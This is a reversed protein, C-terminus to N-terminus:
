SEHAEEKVWNHFEEESIAYFRVTDGAKLLSPQAHKPRFLSLPTCGILQWGGPTELPYVGTQDGAIGVSGAPIVARPTAKRPTAIRAYMGGLYPFGPAFGIMYVLYDPATHLAIVEEPTLGNTKAVFELDPGFVGGYCVPVQVVESSPIISNEQLQGLLELVKEEVVQYPSSHEASGVLSPSYYVTVTTFAPVQEVFGAFTNQAVCQSFAQILAFTEPSISDGFQVVLAADGLPFLRYAAPQQLAKTQKAM